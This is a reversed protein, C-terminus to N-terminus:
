KDRSLRGEVVFETVEPHQALWDASERPAQEIDNQIAVCSSEDEFRVNECAWVLIDQWNRLEGQVAARM